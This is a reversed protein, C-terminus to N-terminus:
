ANLQGIAPMEEPQREGESYLNFAELMEDSIEQAEALTLDISPVNKVAQMNLTQYAFIIDFSRGAKKRIDRKRKRELKRKKRRDTGDPYSPEDGYEILAKKISIVVNHVPYILALKQSLTKM